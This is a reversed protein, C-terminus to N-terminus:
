FSSHGRQSGRPSNEAINEGRLATGNFNASPATRDDIQRALARCFRLAAEPDEVPIRDMKLSDIPMLADRPGAFKEALEAL